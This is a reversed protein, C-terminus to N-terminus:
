AHRKMRKWAVCENFIVDRQMLMTMWGRDTECGCTEAGRTWRRGTVGDGRREGSYGGEAASRDRYSGERWGWGMRWNGVNMGEDGNEEGGEEQGGRAAARHDSGCGAGPERDVGRLIVVVIHAARPQDDVKRLGLASSTGEAM